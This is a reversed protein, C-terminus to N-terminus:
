RPAEEESDAQEVKGEGEADAGAAAAAATERRKRWDAIVDGWAKETVRAVETGQGLALALLEHEVASVAVQRVDQAKTWVRYDSQSLWDRVIAIDDADYLMYGKPSEGAARLAAEEKVLEANEVEAVALAAFLAERTPPRPGREPYIAIAGQDALYEAGALLWDAATFGRVNQVLEFERIEEAIRSELDRESLPSLRLWALAAQRELIVERAEARLAAKAAALEEPTPVRPDPTTTATKTTTM